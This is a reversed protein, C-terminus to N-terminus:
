VESAVKLVEDACWAGFLSEGDDLACEIESMAHLAKHASAFSLLRAGGVSYPHTHRDIEGACFVATAVIHHEDIHHGHCDRGPNKERFSQNAARLVNLVESFAAIICKASIGGEDGERGTEICKAAALLAIMAVADCDEKSPSLWERTAVQQNSEM